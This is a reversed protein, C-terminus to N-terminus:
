TGHEHVESFPYEVVEVPLRNCHRVEGETFFNKIIKGEEPVVHSEVENMLM